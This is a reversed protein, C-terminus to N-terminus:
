VNKGAPVQTGLIMAGDIDVYEAVGVGILPNIGPTGGGTWINIQIAAPVTTSRHATHYM